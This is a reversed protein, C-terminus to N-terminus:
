ADADTEPLDVEAEEGADPLDVEEQAATEAGEVIPSKANAKEAEKAAKAAEREAKKAAKEDAKRQKEADREAKKAAKEEAGSADKADKAAKRAQKVHESFGNYLVWRGFQTAVTAEAADPVAAKYKELVEERTAVVGTENTIADAIEWIKGTKTGAAPRTQGNRKDRKPAETKTEAETTM